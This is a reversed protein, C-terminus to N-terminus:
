KIINPQGSIKIVLDAGVDVNQPQFRHNVTGDVEFKKGNLEFSNQIKSKQGDDLVDRKAEIELKNNFGYVEFEIDYDAFAKQCHKLDLESGIKVDQYKADFDYKLTKPSGELDFKVSLGVSSFM